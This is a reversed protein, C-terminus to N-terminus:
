GLCHNLGRGLDVGADLDLLYAAQVEEFESFVELGPEFGEEFLVFGLGNAFGFGIFQCTDGFEISDESM